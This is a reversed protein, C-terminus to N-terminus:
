RSGAGEGSSAGSEKSGESKKEVAGKKVAEDIREALEDAEDSDNARLWALEVKAKALDGSQLYAEGLYEHAEDYDPKISLCKEYASFARKLDGLNRACYGLMNWAEYYAPDREVIGEFKKIAKGFKKKADGAKGDKKLKKGEQVEAYGKAYLAEADARAARAKMSDPPQNQDAAPMESPPPVQRPPPSPASGSAWATAAVLALIFTAGLAARCWRFTKRDAPM